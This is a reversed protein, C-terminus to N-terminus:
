DITWESDSLKLVRPKARALTLEGPEALRRRPAAVSYEVALTTADSWAVDAEYWKEGPRFSRERVIRDRDFRWIQIVNGCQKECLDAVLVRQGDPSLMPEAPLRTQAGRELDVALYHDVGQTMVSVVAIRRQPWLDWFAYARFEAGTENAPDGTDRLEVPGARAKLRLVRGEREAIGPFQRMQQTELLRECQAAHDAEDCAKVIAERTPPAALLEGAALLCLALVCGITLRKDVLM